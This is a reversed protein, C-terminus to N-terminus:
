VDRESADEKDLNEIARMAVAALQVWEERLHQRRLALPAMIRNGDERSMELTAEAVEGMEESAITQARCYDTPLRGHLKEARVIEHMLLSLIAPCFREYAGLVEQSLNTVM